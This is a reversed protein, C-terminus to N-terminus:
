SKKASKQKLINTAKGSFGKEDTIIINRFCIDAM